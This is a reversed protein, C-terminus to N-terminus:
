DARSSPGVLLKFFVYELIPRSKELLVFVQGPAHVFDAFGGTGFVFNTKLFDLLVPLNQAEKNYLKIIFEM